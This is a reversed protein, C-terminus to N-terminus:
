EHQSFDGGVKGQRHFFLICKQFEGCQLDFIQKVAIIGEPILSTNFFFYHLRTKM